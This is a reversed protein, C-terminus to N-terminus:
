LSRSALVKLVKKVHAVHKKMTKFYIAIDDLYIMAFRNLMTKLTDNIIAQFTTLANTLEFPM